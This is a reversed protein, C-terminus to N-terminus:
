AKSASVLIEQGKIAVTYEALPAPPPGSVVQGNLNYHGNHCPCWIEKLDPRYEVTCGLHTCVATFAVYSLASSPDGGAKLILIAPHDGFKFIIGSNPKLEGVKGASVATTEAGQRRPPIIYRIIPYITAAGLATIGAGLIYTIARRRSVEELRREKYSDLNGWGWFGPM